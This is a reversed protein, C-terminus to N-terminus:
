DRYSYHIITNRYPPVSQESTTDSGNTTNKTTITVLRNKARRTTSISCPLCKSLFTPRQLPHIWTTAQHCRRQASIPSFPTYRALSNSSEICAPSPLGYTERLWRGMTVDEIEILQVVKMPISGDIPENGNSSLMYRSLCATCVPVLRRFDSPFLLGKHACVVLM